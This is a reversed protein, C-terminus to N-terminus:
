AIEEERSRIDEKGKEFIDEKIVSSERGDIIEFKKMGLRSREEDTFAGFHDNDDSINLNSPPFIKCVIAYLVLPCVFGFVVNGYFFNNLGEPINSGQVTAVLGPLGPVVGALWVLIARSNFGKTFYFTGDKSTSYLDMLPLATKRVILFDCVLVAIIPTVVVGFSSMVSLFVSSTNYFNWPQTVWSLLATVISGRTINIYKPYVGALDMGGAFGNALVNFTLQSFAFALGLFFAAARLEPSYVDQLWQLVIDTPLWLSEGYLDNTASACILGFLPVLTGTVCISVIIGLYMKKSSSAFRSFDSQNTVDPSLAGYWITMSYLWMWATKSASLTVPESFMVGPGHNKALCASFIAIFAVLCAACSLNVYSENERAAHLPFM